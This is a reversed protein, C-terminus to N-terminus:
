RRLYDALGHTAFVKKIKDLERYLTARPIRMRKAVAAVDFGHEILLACL